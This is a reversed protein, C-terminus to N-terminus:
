KSLSLAAHGMGEQNDAEYILSLHYGAQNDARFIYALEEFSDDEEVNLSFGADQLYAAYDKVVEYYARNADVRWQSGEVYESVEWEDFTPKPIQMEFENSAWSSDFLPQSSVASQQASSSGSSEAPSSVTGCATLSLAMLAALSLHLLTNAKKM